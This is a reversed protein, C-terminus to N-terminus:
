YRKLIRRLLLIYINEEANDRSVNNQPGGAGATSIFESGSGQLCCKINM